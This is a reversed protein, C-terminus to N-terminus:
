LCIPIMLYFLQPRIKCCKNKSMSGLKIARRVNRCLVWLLHLILPFVFLWAKLHYRVHHICVWLCFKIHLRNFDHQTVKQLTYISTGKQICTCWCWSEWGPRQQSWIGSYLHCALYSVGSLTHNSIFCYKYLVVINDQLFFISQTLYENLFFNKWFLKLRTSTEIRQIGTDGLFHFPPNETGVRRDLFFLWIKVETFLADEASHFSVLIMSNPKTIKIRHWNRSVCYNGFNAQNKRSILSYNHWSHGKMHNKPSAWQNRTLFLFLTLPFRAYTACHHSM